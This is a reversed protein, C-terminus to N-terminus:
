RHGGVKGLTGEQGRLDGGLTWEDCLRSTRKSGGSRKGKEEERRSGKIRNVKRGLGNTSPIGQGQSMLLFRKLAGKHVMEVGGAGAWAAPGVCSWGSQRREGARPREAPLSGVAAWPGTLLTM